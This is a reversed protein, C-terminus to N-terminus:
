YNSDVCTSWREPKAETAQDWQSKSYILLVKSFKALPIGHLETAKTTHCDNGVKCFSAVIKTADFYVMMTTAHGSRPARLSGTAKPNAKCWSSGVNM